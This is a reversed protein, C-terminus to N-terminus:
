DICKLADELKVIIELGSLVKFELNKNLMSRILDQKLHEDDVNNQKLDALNERM